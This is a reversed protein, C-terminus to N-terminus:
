KLLARGTLINAEGRKELSLPTVNNIISFAISTGVCAGCVGYYGCSGGALYSGRKIAERILTRDKKGSLNQFAAVLVAPVISHYEPGHMNLGSLNFIKKILKMPNTEASGAIVQEVRGLVDM